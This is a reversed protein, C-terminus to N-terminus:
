VLSTRMGSREGKTPRVTPSTSFSLLSILM